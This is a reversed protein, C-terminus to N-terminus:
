RNLGTKQKQLIEQVKREEWEEDFFNLFGYHHVGQLAVAIGWGLTPWIAWYYSSTLLNLIHLFAVIVLYTAIHRYFYRLQRVKKKAQKLEKEEATTM